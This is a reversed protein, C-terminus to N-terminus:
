PDITQSLVVSFVGSVQVNFGDTIDSKLLPLRAKYDRLIGKGFSEFLQEESGESSEAAVDATMYLSSRSPHPTQMLRVNNGLIARSAISPATFATATEAGALLVAIAAALKTTRMM